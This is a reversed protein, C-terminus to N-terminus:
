SRTFSFVCWGDPPIRTFDAQLRITKASSTRIWVQFAASAIGVGSATENSTIKVPVQISVFGKLSVENTFTYRAIYTGSAADSFVCKAAPKGHWLISSDLSVDDNADTSVMALTGAGASWDCIMAGGFRQANWQLMLTGDPGALGTVNGSADTSFFAPYNSRQLGAGQTPDVEGDFYAAPIAM